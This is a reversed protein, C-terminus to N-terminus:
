GATALAGGGSGKRKLAAACILAALLGVPLPELFTMAAVIVPNKYMEVFKDMDAKKADLQAPTAGSSKAREISAAAYKTAFDPMFKYYMVEWTAVYFCSALSTILIGTAFARGFSISGKLEVDRYTRVGFYVLSFALIMTTYGVILGLSGHDGIVLISFAMMASLIVGAIVGFKLVTQKM